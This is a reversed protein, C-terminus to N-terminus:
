ERPRAAPPDDEGGARGPLRLRPPARVRGRLGRDVMQDGGRGGVERSRRDGYASEIRPDGLGGHLLADPPGREWITFAEDLGVPLTPVPRRVLDGGRQQPERHARDLLQVAPHEGHLLGSTGPDAGAAGPPGPSGRLRAPSRVRLTRASPTMCSAILVAPNREMTSRARKTSVASKPRNVAADARM